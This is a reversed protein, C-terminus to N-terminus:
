TIQLESLSSFRRNEFVDNFCEQQELSFLRSERNCLLSKPAKLTKPGELRIKKAQIM